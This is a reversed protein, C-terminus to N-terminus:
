RALTRTMSSVTGDLDAGCPADCPGWASLLLDLDAGDVRGDCNLDAAVCPPPPTDVITISPPRASIRSERSEVRKATNSTAENGTVVWGFSSDPDSAWAQVDAVLAATSGFADFGAANVFRTASATAVFDGGPQSWPDGPWFRETWTADAPTPPAGGGGFAVSTGEGWDARCRTLATTQAGGNGKSVFLTVVVSTVTSGSPVAAIPFRM